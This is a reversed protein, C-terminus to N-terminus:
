LKYHFLVISFGMNQQLSNDVCVRLNRQTGQVCGCAGKPAGLAGKHEKRTGKSEKYVGTLEKCASALERHAGASTKTYINLRFM